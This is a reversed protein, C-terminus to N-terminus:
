IVMGVFVGLGSRDDADLITSTGGSFTKVGYTADIIKKQTAYITRERTQLHREM